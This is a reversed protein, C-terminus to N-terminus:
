GITKTFVEAVAAFAAGLVAAIGVGLVALIALIGFLSLLRRWLPVHAVDAYRGEIATYAKSVKGGPRARDQLLARRLDGPAPEADDLDDTTAPAVPVYGPITEHVPDSAPEVEVEVEPDHDASPEPEEDGSRDAVPDTWRSLLDRVAGRSSGSGDTAPKPSEAM